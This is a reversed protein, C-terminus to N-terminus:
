KQLRDRDMGTIEVNFTCSGSSSDAIFEVTGVARGSFGQMAFQSFHFVGRTVKQSSGKENIVSRWDSATSVDYDGPVTINVAKLDINSFPGNDDGLTLLRFLSVRGSRGIKGSSSYDFKAMTKSVAIEQGNIKCKVEAHSSAIFGPGLATALMLLKFLHNM